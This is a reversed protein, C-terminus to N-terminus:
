NKSGNKAMSSTSCLCSQTQLSGEKLLGRQQAAEVALTTLLVNDTKISTSLQFANLFETFVWKLDKPWAM